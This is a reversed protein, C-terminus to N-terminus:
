FRSYRCSRKFKYIFKLNRYVAKFKNIRQLCILKEVLVSNWPSLCFYLHVQWRAHASTCTHTRIHSSRHVPSNYGPLLSQMRESENDSDIESFIDIFKHNGVWTWKTYFTWLIETKMIIYCTSHHRPKNHCQAVFRFTAHKIRMLTMSQIAIHDQPRFLRWCFHTSPIDEPNYLLETSIASLSVM